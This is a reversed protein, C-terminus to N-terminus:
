RTEAARSWGDVCAKAQAQRAEGPLSGPQAGRQLEPRLLVSKHEAAGTKAESREAEGPLGGPLSVAYGAATN